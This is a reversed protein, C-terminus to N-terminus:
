LPIDMQKRAFGSILEIQQITRQQWVRIEILNNEMRKIREKQIANLNNQEKAQKMEIELTEILMNIVGLCGKASAVPAQFKHHYYDEKKENEM